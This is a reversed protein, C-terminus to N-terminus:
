KGGFISSLDMGGLGGALGGMQEQVTQQVKSNANNIAAAVLDELMDKDDALLSPDISVKKVQHQANVVVKVLGAGAEGEVEIASVKDQMDKMNKQVQEFLNGFNQTNMDM